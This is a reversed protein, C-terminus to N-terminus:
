CTEFPASPVPDDNGPKEELIFFRKPLLDLPHSYAGEKIFL